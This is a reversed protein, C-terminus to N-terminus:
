VVTVEVDINGRTARSYPCVAHAAAALQQAKEHEMSPIEVTIRAALGFGDDSDCGQAVAVNVTSASVDDGSKRAVAM